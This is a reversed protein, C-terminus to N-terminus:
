PLLNEAGTLPIALNRAAFSSIARKPGTGQLVSIASLQGNLNKNVFVLIDIILFFIHLEMRTHM